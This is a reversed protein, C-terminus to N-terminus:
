FFAKKGIIGKVPISSNSNIVPTTIMSCIKEIGPIPLSRTCDTKILSIGKLVLNSKKYM